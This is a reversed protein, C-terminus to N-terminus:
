LNSLFLLNLTFSFVVNEVHLGIVALTGCPENNDNRSKLIKIASIGLVGPAVIDRYASSRRIVADSRFTLKELCRVCFAM